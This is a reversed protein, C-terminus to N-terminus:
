NGIEAANRISHLAAIDFYKLKNPVLNESVFKALSLLTETIEEITYNTLTYVEKNNWIDTNLYFLINPDPREGEM